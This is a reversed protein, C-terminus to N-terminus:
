VTQVDTVLWQDGNRTLSVVMRYKQDSGQPATINTVHQDVFGLVTASHDDLHEVAIHDATATAVGKSSVVIDRLAKVMDDYKHAFEPTSGAVITAHNADLHQYDFSSMAVLYNHVSSIAQRRAQELQVGQYYRLGVWGGAALIAVLAFLTPILRILRRRRSPTAAADDVPDVADPRDDNTDDDPEIDPDSTLVDSDM